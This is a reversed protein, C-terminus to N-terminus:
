KDATMGSSSAIGSQLDASAKNVIAPWQQAALRVFGRGTRGRAGYELAAAYNATYCAFLEDGIKADLITMAVGGDAYAFTGGPNPKDMPTPSGNTVMLSSRLFGTDVPMNGGAAVPTQMEEVVRQVSERFVATIRENTQAVFASVQAAFNSQPM